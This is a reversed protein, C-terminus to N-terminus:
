RLYLNFVPRLAPFAERILTNVVMWHTVKITGLWQNVGSTFGALRELLERWRELPGRLDGVQRKRSVREHRDEVLDRHMRASGNRGRAAAFSARVLMKLQRDSEARASEPRRQCTYFGHVAPQESSECIRRYLGRM